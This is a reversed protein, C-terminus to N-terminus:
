AIRCPFGNLLGKIFNTDVYLRTISEPVELVRQGIKLSCLLSLMEDLSGYRSESQLEVEM